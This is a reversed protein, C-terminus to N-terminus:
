EENLNNYKEVVNDIETMLVSYNKNYNGTQQILHKEFENAVYKLGRSM